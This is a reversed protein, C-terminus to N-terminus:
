GSLDELIQELDEKTLFLLGPHYDKTDIILCKNGRSLLLQWAEIDRYVTADDPLVDERASWSGGSTGVKM